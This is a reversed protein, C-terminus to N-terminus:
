ENLYGQVHNCKTCKYYQSEPQKNPILHHNCYTKINGEPTNDMFAQIEQKTLPKGNPWYNGSMDIVTKDGDYKVINVLYKTKKMGEVWCLVGGDPISEYWKLERYIQWIDPFNFGEDLVTKDDADVLEGNLLKRVTMDAKILTEGVLLAQYCESQNKM